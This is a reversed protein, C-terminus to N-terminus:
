LSRKFSVKTVAIPLKSANILARTIKKVRAHQPEWRSPNALLCRCPQDRKKKPGPRGRRPAQLRRGSHPAM